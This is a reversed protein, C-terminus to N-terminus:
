GDKVMDFIDKRLEDDDMQHIHTEDHKHLHLDGTPLDRGKPEVRDFIDFAVSAQFKRDALHESEERFLERTIVQKAKPILLRLEDRVSVVSEELESELRAVEAIFLPSNVILSIQVQTMDYIRALECNRLGGAVVDRAMSRHHNKLQQIRVKPLTETHSRGM